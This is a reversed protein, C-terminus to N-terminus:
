ALVQGMQAREALATDSFRVTAVAERHADDRGAAPALTVTATLNTTNSTWLANAGIRM